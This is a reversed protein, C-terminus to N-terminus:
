NMAMGDGWEVRKKGVSLQVILSLPTDCEEPTNFHMAKAPSPWIVRPPVLHIIDFFYPELSMRCAETAYM